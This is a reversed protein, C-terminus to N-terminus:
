MSRGCMRMSSVGVLALLLVSDECDARIREAGRQVGRGEGGGRERKRQFPEPERLRYCEIKWEDCGRM